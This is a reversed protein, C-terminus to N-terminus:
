RAALWRELSAAQVAKLEVCRDISELSQRVAREAEPAPHSAFFAAIDDRAKADCYVGLQSVAGGGGFSIIKQHMEPWRAKLAKWAADRSAPNAIMTSVFGPLDQERMKASSWLAISREVLSPAEFRALSFLYRDHEEPTASRDVRGLWDDYLAADGSGAAITFAARVLSPDVSMPDATYHALLGKARALAEPDGAEGMALLLSARLSRRDDSDSPGPRWGVEAVMPGLLERLWRDYAPRRKEAVFTRGVFRLDGLLTEVVAEELDVRFGAAFDLFDALTVEGARMLAWQDGLLALREAPSLDRDLGQSLTRLADPEYASRYYARAGANLILPGCHDMPFSQAAEDFLICSHSTTGLTRTCVPITWREPAPVVPAKPSEFFRRQTLRLIGRGDVCRMEARVLPAGAQDVFSTMIARTGKGSIKALEQWLDEAKASGNQYRTIYANVGARFAEPGLYGELMTLVAAGKEYSIGDFMQKIEAPTEAQSRIARTSGLSDASLVAATSRASEVQQDWSPDWDQLAKRAMWTAFGENLWVDDWWGMTVLDGFWQHAVEHAVMGAVGRRSEVSAHPADLLLAREKYFISATNEMGGWEYDPIALMDLKGFPYRVAFWENYWHLFHQAMALAFRGLHQKGPVTCVRILIGDSMGEECAFDGIALAVLYTSMRPSRTFRITRKGPRPGPRVAEIRGNSIATDGDDVVVSLDFTAKYAPEDFCPFAMRAYTGEFQTVAYKRREGTSVYLGRLDTRLRGSFDLAITAEGPPLVADLRLTATESAADLVVTAPRTVGASRISAHQLAFDVSNLVVATTPRVVQVSIRESGALSGDGLDPSLSIEYHVPVVDGPLREASAASGFALALCALAVSRPLTNTM